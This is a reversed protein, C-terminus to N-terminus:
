YNPDFLKSCKSQGVPTLGSSSEWSQTNLGIIHIYKSSTDSPLQESDSDSGAQHWIAPPLFLM